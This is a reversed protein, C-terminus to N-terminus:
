AALDLCDCSRPDIRFSGEPYSVMASDKGFAKEIDKLYRRYMYPHSISAANQVALPLVDFEHLRGNFQTCM